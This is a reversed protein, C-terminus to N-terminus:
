RWGEGVSGDPDGPAEERGEVLDLYLKGNGDPRSEKAIDFPNGRVTVRTGQNLSGADAELVILTPNRSQVRIATASASGRGGRALTNEESPYTFIGLIKSGDSLSIPEGLRTVAQRSAKLVADRFSM